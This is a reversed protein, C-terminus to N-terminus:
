QCTMCSEVVNGASCDTQLGEREMEVVLNVVALWVPLCIHMTHRINACMKSKVFFFKKNERTFPSHITCTPPHKVQHTVDSMLSM